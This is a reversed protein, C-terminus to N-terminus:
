DQMSTKLEESLKMAEALEGATPAPKKMIEEYRARADNEMPLTDPSGNPTGAGGLNVDSEFFRPSTKRLQEMFEGAKEEEGPDIGSRSLKFKLFDVDSFRHERALREAGSHFLLDAKEKKLSDREATLQALRRTLEEVQEPEPVAPTENLIEEEEKM